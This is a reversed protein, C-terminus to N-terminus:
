YICHLKIYCCCAQYNLENPYSDRLNLLSPKLDEVKNCIEKVKIPSMRFFQNLNSLFLEHHCFDLSNQMNMIISCIIEVVGNDVYM